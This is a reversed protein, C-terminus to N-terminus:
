ISLAILATLDGDAAALKAGTDARAIGVGTLTERALRVHHHEAGVLLGFGQQDAVIGVPQTEELIPSHTRHDPL